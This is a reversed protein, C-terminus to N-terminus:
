GSSGTPETSSQAMPGSRHLVGDAWVAAGSLVEALTPTDPTAADDQGAPEEYIQILVGSVTSPRLYCVKRGPGALSAGIVEHGAATVQTIAADIDDVYFTMHHFGPGRESLRKQHVSEPGLPQLFELKTGGPMALVVARQGLDTRNGGGAYRGGLIDGYLRLPVTVDEVLFAIHDLRWAAM